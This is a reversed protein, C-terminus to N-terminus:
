GCLTAILQGACGRHNLELVGAQSIMSLVIELDLRSAAARARQNKQNIILKVTLWLREEKGIIFVVYLVIIALTCGCVNICYMFM